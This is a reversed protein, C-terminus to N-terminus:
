YKSRKIDTPRTTRCIGVLRFGNAKTTMMTKAYPSEKKLRLGIAAYPNGDVSAVAVDGIMLLGLRIDVPDSDKYTGAVGGRGQDTRQRGPCTVIKQDGYIRVTSEKRDAGRMAHLVEEGLMQGMSLIMQKQQNMLRAVAPDGRDM